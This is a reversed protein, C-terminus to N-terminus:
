KDQVQGTLSQRLNGTDILPNSSGKAKITAATNPPENINVMVTQASGQAWLAVRELENMYDRGRAVRKAANILHQNIKREDVKLFTRLTPRAPIRGDSSGFEHITALEAMSMKAKLHMVDDPFGIAIVSKALEEFDPINREGKKRRFKNASSASM